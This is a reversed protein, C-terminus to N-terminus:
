DTQRMENMLERAERARELSLRQTEAWHDVWEEIPFGLMQEVGAYRSEDPLTSLDWPLVFLGTLPWEATLGLRAERPDGQWGADRLGELYSEFVIEDLEKAQSLQVERWTLTSGILARIEMGIWGTGVGAWDVAVTQQLGDETRRSFLNRRFADGHCLTQPLRDLVDLFREREAWLSLLSDVVDPPYARRVMRHVTSERLQAIAPAARDVFQRLWSKRRLWPWSPVAWGALYVANFQGLHRAVLGYHELPWQTGLDDKVDEMWIWCAGDPQDIVGFCRPAALGGPLDDLFGSEYACAERRWYNFDTPRGRDAPPHLVKVILSWDVAYPHDRGHGSIRHIASGGATGFSGGGHVQQAHWSTVEATKSGLAQRVIPTLTANDISQLPNDPGNSM